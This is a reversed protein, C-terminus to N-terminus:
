KSSNYCSNDNSATESKNQAEKKVENQPESQSVIEKSQVSNITKTLEEIKAAVESRKTKTDQNKSNIKLMEDFDKVAIEYLEIQKQIMEIDKTVENKRSIAEALSIVCLAKRYLCKEHKPDIVLAKKCDALSEDFEKRNFCTLARNSLVQVYLQSYKEKYTRDDELDKLAKEIKQIIFQFVDKARRLDGTKFLLNAENKQKELADLLEIKAKDDKLIDFGELEKQKALEPDTEILIDDIRDIGKLVEQNTRDLELVHQFDNKALRLKDLKEYAM